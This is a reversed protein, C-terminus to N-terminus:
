ERVKYFFFFFLIMRKFLNDHYDFRIVFKSNIKSLYNFPVNLYMSMYITNQYLSLNESGFYKFILEFIYLQLYWIIWAVYYFLMM